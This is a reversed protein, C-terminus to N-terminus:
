PFDLPPPPGLSDQLIILNGQATDLADGIARLIAEATARDLPPGVHQDKISLVPAPDSRYPTTAVYEVYQGRGDQVIFDHFFYHNEQSFQVLFRAGPPLKLSDGAKALTTVLKGTFKDIVRLTGVASQTGEVLTLRWERFSRNYWESRPEGPAAGSLLLCAGLLACGRPHCLVSWM